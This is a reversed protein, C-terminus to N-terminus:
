GYDLEELLCDSYLSHDDPQTGMPRTSKLLFGLIM